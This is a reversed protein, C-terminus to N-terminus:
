RRRADLLFSGFATGRFERGLPLREIHVFEQPHLRVAAHRIYPLEIELVPPLPKADLM